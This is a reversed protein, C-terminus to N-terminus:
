VNSEEEAHVQPLPPAAGANRAWRDATLENIAHDINDFVEWRRSHFLEGDPREILVDGNMNDETALVPEPYGDELRWAIVDHVDHHVPFEDGGIFLVHARQGLQAPVVPSIARESTGNLLNLVYRGRGTYEADVVHDLNVCGKETNCWVMDIKGIAAPQGVRVQLVARDANEPYTKGPFPSLGRGVGLGAPGADHQHM